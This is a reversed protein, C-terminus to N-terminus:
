HEEGVIKVRLGPVMQDLGSAILKDTPQLGSVVEVFEGTQPGPVLEIPKLMARGVLPEVIWIKPQEAEFRVLRRPVILRRVTETKPADTSTTALFRVAAIMEPRLQAPPGDPLAVKVPVSNRAVNALHTDSLVVGNLKVGPLVDEIEIVAPQGNCVLAFKNIPVEVRVQLKAPDYLTVAADKHEIATSKGGMISGVRVNLQMVVGNVPAVIRTRDLELQAKRVEVEADAAEHETEDTKAKLSALDATATAKVLEAQRVRVASTVKAKEVKAEASRTDAAAVEQQQRAQMLKVESTVAGSKRLNEEVQVAIDASKQMAVARALDANLSKLEATAEQNALVIAAEANKLAVEARSADTQAVRVAAKRREHRRQAALLELRAREDDFRVLLQGAKVRDGPVVAVEIARYMGETQVPVDTALPRPEIWGNAKFLEQGASEVVGSRTLVPLITVKTAPALYEWSSYVFLAAFGAVLTFPLIVRSIWRRPLHLEPRDHSREVALAGLDIQPKAM